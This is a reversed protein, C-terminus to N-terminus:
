ATAALQLGIRRMQGRLSTDIVQSGVKVVLGGLIAPDVTVLLEVHNAGTMTKVRDRIANQQDDSLEVAATVNALVTQNRARLLVQYQELITQLFSVRGRDVLLLLFSLVFDSVRGETIQRLAGKKAEPNTLPNALFEILDQSGALVGLLEAVETGVQDVASNDEAVSMLAKAYPGAIEASLATDKM